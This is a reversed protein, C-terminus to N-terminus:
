GKAPFTSCPKEQVKECGDYSLDNGRIVSVTYFKHLATEENYFNDKKFNVTTLDLINLNSLNLYIFNSFIVYSLYSAKVWERGM